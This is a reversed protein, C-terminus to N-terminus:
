SGSSRGGIQGGQSQQIGSGEDDSGQQAVSGSSSDGTESTGSSSGSTVSTHTGLLLAVSAIGTVALSGAGVLATLRGVVRKGQERTGM